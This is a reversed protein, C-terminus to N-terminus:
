SSKLCIRKAIHAWHMFVPKKLTRTSVNKDYIILNIIYAIDDPHIHSEGLDSVWYSLHSYRPQHPRSGFSWVTSCDLFSGDEYEAGRSDLVECQQESTLFNCRGSTSGLLDVEDGFGTVPSYELGPLELEQMEFCDIVFVISLKYFYLIPRDM